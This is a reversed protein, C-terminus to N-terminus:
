VQPWGTRIRSRLPTQREEQRHLKLVYAEAGISSDPSLWITPIV